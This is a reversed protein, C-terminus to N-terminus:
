VVNLLGSLGINSVVVGCLSPLTMLFLVLSVLSCVAMLLLKKEWSWGGGGWRVLKEVSKSSDWLHDKPCTPPVRGGWDGGHSRWQWSWSVVRPTYIPRTVQFFANFKIQKVFIYKKAIKWNPLRLLLRANCVILSMLLLQRRNNRQKAVLKTPRLGQDWYIAGRRWQYSRDSRRNILM